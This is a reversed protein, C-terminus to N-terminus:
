VALWYFWVLDMPILYTYLFKWQPLCPEHGTYWPRLSLVPSSWPVSNMYAITRLFERTPAGHKLRKLLQNAHFVPLQNHVILNSNNKEIKSQAKRMCKLSSYIVNFFMQWNFIKFIWSTAHYQAIFVPRAILLYFSREM